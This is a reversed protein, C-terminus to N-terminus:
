ERKRKLELRVFSEFALRANELYESQTDPDLEIPVVPRGAMKRTLDKALEAKRHQLASKQEGTLARPM